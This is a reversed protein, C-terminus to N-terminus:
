AHADIEIEEASAFLLWVVAGFTAVGASFLFAPFYSGTSHVIWGTFLVCVFSPIQGLTNTVPAVIIGDDVIRPPADSEAHEAGHLGVDPDDIEAIWGARAFHGIVM